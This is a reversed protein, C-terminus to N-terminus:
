LILEPGHSTFKLIPTSNGSALVGALLGSGLPDRLLFVEGRLCSKLLSFPTQPSNDEM